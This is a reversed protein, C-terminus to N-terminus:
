DRLGQSLLRFPLGEVGLVPIGFPGFIFLYNGIVNLINMGITIYMTDKTFGYSKLVAGITMILAQLFCLGGVMKLYYDAEAM